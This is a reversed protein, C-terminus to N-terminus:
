PNRVIVNTNKPKNLLLGLMLYVFYLYIGATIGSISEWDASAGSLVISYIVSLLIFCVCITTIIFINNRKM